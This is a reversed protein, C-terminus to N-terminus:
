SEEEPFNPFVDRPRAKAKEHNSAVEVEKGVKTYMPTAVQQLKFCVNELRLTVASVESNAISHKQKQCRSLNMRPKLM